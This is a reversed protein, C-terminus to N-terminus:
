AYMIDALFRVDFDFSAINLQQSLTFANYKEVEIQVYRAFFPNKRAM